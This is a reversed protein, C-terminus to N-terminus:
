IGQETEISKTRLVKEVFAKPSIFNVDDKIEQVSLRRNNTIFFDCEGAIYACIHPLDSKDTVKREYVSMLIDIEQEQIVILEPLTLINLRILGSIEKGFLKKSRNQVEELVRYSIVPKVNNGDINELVIYSNTLSSQYAFLFINTDLFVKPM